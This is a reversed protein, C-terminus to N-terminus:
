EALQAKALAVDLWETADMPKIAAAQEYLRTAEGMKKEGELMLLGNACEIMGIPSDPNLKLADQFLKLGVEKKTGYTMGGILSGVKDIVEAHFVALAVHADAHRPQLKITHELADKV